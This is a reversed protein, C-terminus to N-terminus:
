FRVDDFHRRFLVHRHDPQVDPIELTTRQCLVDYITVEVNSTEDSSDFIGIHVWTNWLALVTPLPSM